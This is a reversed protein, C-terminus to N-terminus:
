NIVFSFFCVVSMATEFARLFHCKILIDHLSVKCRQSKFRTLHCAIEACQKGVVRKMLTDLLKTKIVKM